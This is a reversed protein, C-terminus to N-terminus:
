NYLSLALRSFRWIEVLSYLSSAQIKKISRPLSEIPILNIKLMESSCDVNHVVLKIVPCFTNQM